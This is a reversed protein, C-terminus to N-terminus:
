AAPKPKGRPKPPAAVERASDYIDRGIGAFPGGVTMVGRAVYGIGRGMTRRFGPSLIGATVGALLAIRPDPIPLEMTVELEM